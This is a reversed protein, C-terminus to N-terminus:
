VRETPHCDSLRVLEANTLRAQHRKSIPFVHWANEIAKILTVTVGPSNPDTAATALGQYHRGVCGPWSWANFFAGEFRYRGDWPQGPPPPIRVVLQVMLPRTAPSEISRVVCFREGDAAAEFWYQTEPPDANDYEETIRVPTSPLISHSNYPIETINTATVTYHLPNPQEPNGEPEELFTLPPETSNILARAVWYREDTYDDEGNPGKDKVLGWWWQARKESFAVHNGTSGVWMHLGSNGIGSPVHEVQAKQLLANMDSASIESMGPEWFRTHGMPAEPIPTSM